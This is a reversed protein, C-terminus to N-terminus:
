KKRQSLPHRVYPYCNYNAGFKSNIQSEVCDDKEPHYTDFLGNLSIM